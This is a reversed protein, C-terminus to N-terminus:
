KVGFYRPMFWIYFIIIYIFLIFLSDLILYIFYIFLPGSAEGAQRCIQIRWSAACTQACEGARLKERINRSEEAVEAGM